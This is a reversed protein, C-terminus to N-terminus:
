LGLLQYLATHTSPRWTLACYRQVAVYGCVRYNLITATQYAACKGLLGVPQPYRQKYETHCRGAAYLAKTRNEPSSFGCCRLSHKALQQM